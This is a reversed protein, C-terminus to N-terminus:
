RSAGNRDMLSFLHIQSQSFLTFFLIFNSLAGVTLVVVSLLSYAAWGPIAMPTFLKIWVVALSLALGATFIGFFFLLSRVAIQDLFPMMMRLGHIMLKLYTMRSKGKFRPGRECGVFFLPINLSILTASYCLDFYPHSLFRKALAGSYAAFNGHRIIRGTLARFILKFAFYLLKFSLTERRGMRYALVIQGPNQAAGELLRSVDDPKDQGDSDMTVILDSDGITSIFKRLGLVLARQHGVNFPCHVIHLDKELSLSKIAPDQHGSDDIVVYRIRGELLADHTLLSRSVKERLELFSEVDWYVPLFIWINSSYRGPMPPM